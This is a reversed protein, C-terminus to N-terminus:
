HSFRGRIRAVIRRAADRSRHRWSRQTEVAGALQRIVPLIRKVVERETPSLAPGPHGGGGARILGM